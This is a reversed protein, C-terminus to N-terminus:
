PSNKTFKTGKKTNKTTEREVRCAFGFLLFNVAPNDAHQSKTIHYTILYIPYKKAFRQM